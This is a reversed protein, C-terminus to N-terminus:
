WRPKRGAVADAVAERVIELGEPGLRGSREMERVVLGLIHRPEERWNAGQRHELALDSALGYARRYVVFATWPDAPDHDMTPREACSLAGTPGPRTGNNM